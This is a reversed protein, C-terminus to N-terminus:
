NPKTVTIRVQGVKPAIGLEALVKSASELKDPILDTDVVFQERKQYIRATLGAEKLKGVIDEAKAKPTKDRLSIEQVHGRMTPPEDYQVAWQGLQLAQLAFFGVLVSAALASPIMWRPLASKALKDGPRKNDQGPADAKPLLGERRLAFMLREVGAQDVSTSPTKQGVLDGGGGKNDAMEPATSEAHERLIAGRLLDAEALAQPDGVQTLKGSLRDFWQQDSSSFQDTDSMSQDTTGNSPPTTPPAM